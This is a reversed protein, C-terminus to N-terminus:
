SPVEIFVDEGEVKVKFMAVCGEGTTSKGTRIDYTWGHMPCTVEYNKIEGQHLLSFHQHSCVNNITFLEGNRKFIAIDSAGITVLLGKQERIENFKAVRKFEIM